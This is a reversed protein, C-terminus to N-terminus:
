LFRVSFHGESQLYCVLIPDILEAGETYVISCLNIFRGDSVLFSWTCGKAWNNGAGSEGHLYTEPSFLAGM